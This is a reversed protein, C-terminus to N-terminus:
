FNYVEIILKELDFNALSELEDKDQISIEIIRVESQIKPEECKHTVAIEWFTPTDDNDFTLVDALFGKHYKDDLHITKIDGINFSVKDVKMQRIKEFNVTYCYKIVLTIEERTLNYFYYVMSLYDHNISTNIYKDIFLLNDILSNKKKTSSWHKDVDLILYSKNRSISKDVEKILWKHFKTFINILEKNETEKIKTFFKLLQKNLKAKREKYIFNLFYKDITYKLREKNNNIFIFGTSYDFGEREIYYHKNFYFEMVKSSNIHKALNDYLIKKATKHLYSEESCEKNIHFFHPVRIKGRKIGMKGNCSPCFFDGDSKSSKSAEVIENKNKLAYFNVM